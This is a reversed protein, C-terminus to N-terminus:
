RSLAEMYVGETREAIAPWCFGQRLRQMQAEVESEAGPRSFAEIVARAIQAPVDQGMDLPTGGVQSLVDRLGDADALIAPTGCAIGEVAVMGFGEGLSPFVLLDATSYLDVMEDGHALGTFVLRHGVGLSEGLRALEGGYGWDEGAFVFTTDPFRELVLPAAEILYQPGKAQELRGVFLAVRQPNGLRKLLEQSRPRPRFRQLDVGNPIVSLKRSPVGIREFQDRVVSSLVILSNAASLTFRGLTKDYTHRAIRWGAGASDVAALSGHHTLVLPRRKLRCAAAAILSEAFLYYHAHVLDFDGARLLLFAALGPNVAYSWLRFWPRFRRIEIGDIIELPPLRYRPPRMNVRSLSLGPVDKDYLWNSTAVTVHHGRRVLERSLQFVVEEGGGVAPPFRQIVQLVRM